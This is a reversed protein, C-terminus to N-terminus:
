HQATRAKAKITAAQKTKAAKDIQTLSSMMSAKQPRVSAAVAEKPKELSVHKQGTEYSYMNLLSPDKKGNFYLATSKDLREVANESVSFAEKSTLFEPSINQKIDDSVFVKNLVEESPLVGSLADDKGRAYAQDMFYAFNNVHNEEYVNQYHKFGYWTKFAAEGAKAMDGSKDMEETFARYMPFASVHDEVEPHQEKIQYAFKAEETWAAAEAARHFKFQDALNYQASSLGLMGNTRENQVAHTMEHFATAALGAVSTHQCPCLMIKKQDAFMCGDNRGHFAEFYFEYGGQAVEDLLKQGQPVSAILDFVDKLLKKEEELPIRRQQFSMQLPGQATQFSTTVIEQVSLSDEMDQRTKPPEPQQPKRKFLDSLFSM